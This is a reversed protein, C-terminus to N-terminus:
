SMMESNECLILGRVELNRSLGFDGLVVCQQDQREWEKPASPKGDRRIIPSTTTPQKSVDESKFDDEATELLYNRLSIDRHIYGSSHLHQVGRAMDLGLSIMKEVSLGGLM